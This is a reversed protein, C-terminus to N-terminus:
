PRPGNLLPANARATSRRNVGPMSCISVDETEGHERASATHMHLCSACGNIQSARIKVLEMLSDELGCQLVGKGYDLWAQMAAPAAAFPNLRPEMTM